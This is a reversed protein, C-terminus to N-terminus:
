GVETLRKIHYIPYSGFEKPLVVVGVYRCDFPNRPDELLLAAFAESAYVNGPSTIPEIRAAQNVHSGFFNRREMLPEDLCYVPGAHLGIRLNLHGPLGLRSWDTRRITDRMALACDAAELPDAFVLCIADGWTNKYVPRLRRRRMTDALAALFGEVYRPVQEERLRSYGVLDAFLIAVTQQASGPTPPAFTRRASRGERASAAASGSAGAIHTETASVPDIAVLPFGSQRWTEICEATGGPAGNVKGDWVAILLPETELSRSRLMAKGLILRNAYSFLHDGGDYGGRTAQEVTSSEALVREVRRVWPEGAFSVSTKLFDGRDFPLVVNCEGGRERLCEHFLVDAGCAASAYGIRIDLRELVEAIRKKVPEAASEPFRARKQGQADILHGSFAAVPPIRLTDMVNADVPLYRALLALQRRTSALSSYNNTCRARAFAYYKAAQEQRGLLLNAEAVTAVTWYDRQDSQKWREACLRIVTRALNEAKGRDGMIMSLSAANIGSYPGRSRNFAGLYLERSKVLHPHDAAGNGVILWMEKHVRGLIGLTEEDLHGRKVMSTLLTRASLLFGSKILSLSYLQTLRPHEPFCTLGDKLIDHAFMTQGLNDAVGALRLHFWPDASWLTEDRGLWLDHITTGLRDGAQELHQDFQERQQKQETM